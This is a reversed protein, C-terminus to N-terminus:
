QSQAVIRAAILDDIRKDDLGLERLVERSHEGALPAGRAVTSPTRSFNIAFGPTKVRGETPHEYEVFTGNQAIQPDDILDAYGFVPGAWIDVAAFIEL